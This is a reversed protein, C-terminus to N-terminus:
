ATKGPNKHAREPPSTRFVVFAPTSPSLTLATDPARFGLSNMADGGPLTMWGLRLKLALFSVWLTVENGPLM